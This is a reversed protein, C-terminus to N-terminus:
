DLIQTEEIDYYNNLLNVASKVAKKADEKSLDAPMKLLGNDKGRIPIEIRDHKCDSQLASRSAQRIEKLGCYVIIDNVNRFYATLDDKNESSKFLGGEEYLLLGITSIASDIDSLLNLLNERTPKDGFEYDGHVWDLYDTQKRLKDLVDNPLDRSQMSDANVNEVGVWGDNNKVLKNM